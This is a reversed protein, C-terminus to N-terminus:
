PAVEQTFSAAIQHAEDRWRELESQTCEEQTKYGIENWNWRPVDGYREWKLHKTPVFFRNLYSEVSYDDVARRTFDKTRSSDSKAPGSTAAIHFFGDQADPWIFVLYSIGAEEGSGVLAEGPAPIYGSAPHYMGAKELVDERSFAQGVEKPEALLRYADSLGFKESHSIEARRAYVGMYRSATAHEFPLNEKVWPLWEGHKLTAKQELLLQGIRIALDLTTRASQIIEGHLAVIESAIGPRAPCTSSPHEPQPLTNM